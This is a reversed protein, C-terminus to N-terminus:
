GLQQIQEHSQTTEGVYYCSTWSAVFEPTVEDFRFQNRMLATLAMDDSMLEYFYCPAFARDIVAIAWHSVSDM